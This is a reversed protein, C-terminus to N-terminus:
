LHFTVSFAISLLTNAILLLMTMTIFLAQGEAMSKLLEFIISLLLVFSSICIFSQILLTRKRTLIWSFVAILYLCLLLITFPFPVFTSDFPYTRPEGVTGDVSKKYDKPCETLCQKKYM